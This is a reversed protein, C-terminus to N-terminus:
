IGTDRNLRENLKHKLMATIEPKHEMVAEDILDLLDENSLQDLYPSQAIESVTVDDKQLMAWLEYHAHTSAAFKRGEYYLLWAAAGAFAAIPLVLLSLIRKKM